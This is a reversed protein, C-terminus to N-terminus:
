EVTARGSSVFETASRVLFKRDRPLIDPPTLVDIAALRWRGAVRQFMARTLPAHVLEFLKQSAAPHRGSPDRGFYADLRLVDSDSGEAAQMLPDVEGAILRLLTAARLEEISKVDPLPRHGRADALMSVHYGTGQVRDFRCLNVVREVRGDNYRPDTLYERASAVATGPIEHLWERARDVVFLITM